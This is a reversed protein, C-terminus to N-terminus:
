DTTGMFCRELVAFLDASQVPKALHETSGVAVQEEMAERGTSATLTIIPIDSFNSIKRLRRIAELGNMVPMQVDMLILEPENALALDIAERGNRAVTVSHNQISLMDLILALNNENDEAVLINRERCTIKTESKSRETEKQNILERRIPLTFWFSSGKGIESDVGIEGGHLKVLRQTLALGIGTGGLNTDRSPDAQHFETFISDHNEAAIGPGNDNVLIRIANDKTEGVQIQIKGGKPTFKLANSLLNLMIQKCKRLDGTIQSIKPDTTTNVTLGKIRFQAQMLLVMDEIIQNPPFSELEPDMARADIKAIDLLDSILDLLHKGSTEIRKVYEKQKENLPGFFEGGLLDNFGIIGNLPTRLEHSMSSLFKSRSRSAEELLLNVEKLRDLSRNLDSTRESVRQELEEKARQLARETKKQESIDLGSVLVKAWNEEYGTPIFIRSFHYLIEGSETKGSFEGEYRLKGEAFAVLEKYFENFILDIANKPLYKQLFKTKDKEGYLELTAQNVDLIKVMNIARTVEQPHEEFYTRFDRVGSNKLDDILKKVDSFDEEWLSIPADEFLCRYRSESERLAEEAQKQEEVSERFALGYAMILEMLPISTVRASDFFSLDPSEQALKQLAEVHVEALDEPPYNQLVMERGLEQAEALYKEESESFYGKLLAFYKEVFSRKVM